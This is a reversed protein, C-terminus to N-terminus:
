AALNRSGWDSPTEMRGPRRAVLRAEPVSTISEAHVSRSVPGCEGRNSFPRSSVIPSGISGGAPNAPIIRMPTMAARLPEVGVVLMVSPLGVDNVTVLLVVPAVIAVPFLSFRVATSIGPPVGRVRRHHCTAQVPLTAVRSLQVARTVVAPNSHYVSNTGAALQQRRRIPDSGVVAVVACRVANTALKVAAPRVNGGVTGPPGNVTVRDSPTACISTRRPAVDSALTGPLTTSDDGSPMTRM